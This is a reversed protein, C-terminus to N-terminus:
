DRGPAKPANHTHFWGLWRGAIHILKGTIILGGVSVLLWDPAGEWVVALLILALVFAGANAWLSRLLRNM